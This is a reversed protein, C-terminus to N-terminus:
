APLDFIFKEENSNCPNPAMATKRSLIMILTAITENRSIRTETMAMMEINMILVVVFMAIGPHADVNPVEMNMMSSVLKMIESMAM